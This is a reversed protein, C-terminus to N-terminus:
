RTKILYNDDSLLIKLAEKKHKPLSSYESLAAYEKYGIASEKSFRKEIFEAM